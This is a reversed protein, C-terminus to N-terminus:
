RFACSRREFLLRLAAAQADTDMRPNPGNTCRLEIMDANEITCSGLWTKALAAAAFTSRRLTSKISEKYVIWYRAGDIRTTSGAPAIVDRPISICSFSHPYSQREAVTSRDDGAARDAQRGHVGWRQCSGGNARCNTRSVPCGFPRPPDKHVTGQM